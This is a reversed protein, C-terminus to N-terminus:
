KCEWWHPYIPYWKLFMKLSHFADRRDLGESEAGIWRWTGDLFQYLGLASSKSNKAKPNLNSECRAIRLATDPNVGVKVSEVRILEEIDVEREVVELTEIERVEESVSNSVKYEKRSSNNSEDSVANAGTLSSILIVLTISVTKM